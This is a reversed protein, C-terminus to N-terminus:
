PADKGGYIQRIADVRHINCVPKGSNIADHHHDVPSADHTEAVRSLIAIEYQASRFVDCDACRAVPVVVNFSGECGHRVLRVPLSKNHVPLNVQIRWVECNRKM